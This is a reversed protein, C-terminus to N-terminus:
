GSGNEQSSPVPPTATCTLRTHEPVLSVHLGGGGPVAFYGFSLEEGAPIAAPSIITVSHGNRGPSRSIVAPLGDSYSGPVTCVSGVTVVAPVGAQALAHEMAAPDFVQGQTLTLTVTGAPSTDVSFAAVHIHVGASPNAGPGDPRAPVPAPSGGGAANIGLAAIAVAAATAVGAVAYRTRRSAPGPRRGAAPRSDGPRATNPQVATLLFQELDGGFDPVPPPVPRRDITLM